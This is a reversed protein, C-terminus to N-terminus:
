YKVGCMEPTIDHGMFVTIGRHEKNYYIDATIIVNIIGDYNVMETVVTANKPITDELRSLIEASVEVSLYDTKELHIPNIKHVARLKLM